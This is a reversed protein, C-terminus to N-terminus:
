GVINNMRGVVVVSDEGFIGFQRAVLVSDSLVILQFKLISRNFILHPIMYNGNDLLFRKSVLTDLEFDTALRSRRRYGGHHCGLNLNPM